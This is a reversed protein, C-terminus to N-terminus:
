ISEGNEKNAGYEDSLMKERSVKKLIPYIKNALDKGLMEGVDNTADPTICFIRFYQILNRELKEMTRKGAEDNDFTCIITLAGANQLMLRQHRSMNLGLLAISNRIGIMEYAWVDGPGECLIVTGTKRIFPKAYWINYLCLESHFNRSHKWKTYISKYKPEPCQIRQPHHHMGCKNCKEYISRGSWGVVYKGTEDLIPFFARQYMPKGKTNCFSIHYRNIIEQVIGRKPYYIQDSKLYPIFTALPTRNKQTTFQKKRHQKIIKAIEMDQITTEDIDYQKFGLIKAIFNVTQQFNWKRKTRHSMTGRVLGFISNSPGTIPNCHCGRTKCQWHNSRIAWFMARTNDGGHVSCASQLYDCRETYEINLADFIEAVRECARNQIFSIEQASFQKM